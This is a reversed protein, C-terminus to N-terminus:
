QMIITTETTVGKEYVAIKERNLTKSDGIQEINKKICNGNTKESKEM